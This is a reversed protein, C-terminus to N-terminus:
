LVRRQQLRDEADRAVGAKHRLHALMGAEEQAQRHNRRLEDQQHSLARRDETSIATSLQQQSIDQRRSEARRAQEQIRLEDVRRREEAALELARIEARQQEIRTALEDQDQGRATLIPEDQSNSPQSCSPTPSLPPSMILVIM